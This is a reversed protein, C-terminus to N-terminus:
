LNASGFQTIRDYAVEGLGAINLMIASGDPPIRVHTVKGELEIPIGTEETDTVVNLHYKGQSLGLSQPDIKFLLQGADQKGLPIKYQNGRQDQVIVTVTNAAHQLTLRGEITTTGDTQMNNTQMSSTQQDSRAMVKQGVLNGTALTQLNNVLRQNNQMLKSMSEMSQLQTLQALQGVYETGNTPNLPDQNRIQAVLLQMFLNNISLDKTGAVDGNNTISKSLDASLSSSEAENNIKM